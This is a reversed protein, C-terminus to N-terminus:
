IVDQNCYKYEKRKRHPRSSSCSCATHHFNHLFQDIELRITGLTKMFHCYQISNRIFLIIINVTLLFTRTIVSIRILIRTNVCHDWIPDYCHIHGINGNPITTPSPTLTTRTSNNEPLSKSHGEKGCELFIFM